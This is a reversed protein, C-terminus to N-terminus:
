PSRTDAVQSTGNERDKSPSSGGSVLGPHTWTSKQTTINYFYAESGGGRPYRIEWDPPLADSDGTGPQATGNQRRERRVMPGALTSTQPPLPQVYVPATLVPKPPLAHILKPQSQTRKLNPSDSNPQPQSPPQKQASNFHVFNTRNFTTAPIASRQEPPSRPTAPKGRQSSDHDTSQHTAFDQAEDEDGLSVADEADDPDRWTADHGATAKQYLHAGQQEDDENGWDLVETDEDM